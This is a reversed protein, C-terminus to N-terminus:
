AGGEARGPTLGVGATEPVVSSAAPKEEAEAQAGGDGDHEAGTEAAAGYCCSCDGPGARSTEQVGGRAGAGSRTLDAGAGAHGQPSRPGRRWALVPEGRPRHQGAPPRGFRTTAPTRDAAKPHPSRSSAGRPGVESRSGQTPVASRDPTSTSYAGLLTGLAGGADIRGRRDEPRSRLVGACVGAAVQNPTDAAMLAKAFTVNLRRARQEAYPRSLARLPAPCRQRWPRELICYAEKHPVTYMKKFYPM